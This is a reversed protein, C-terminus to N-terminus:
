FSMIIVEDNCYEKYAKPFLVGSNAYKKSFKELNEVEKKFSVEQLIMDAFEEIVAEISNKTYHSFLPRFLRNFFRLIKIDSVVQKKINYRKLKVAVKEGSKLYGIHVQGISASAIPEKDFSKFINPNISRSFIINFEKYSMPPLEDHLTKLEELYEKDFFDARTALVQALKIFSAGLENIYLRLQKPKLPRFFLLSEKKKILLFFTLILTFIKYVRKFSYFRYM